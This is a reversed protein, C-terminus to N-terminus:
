GLLAYLLRRLLTGLGPSAEALISKAAAHSALSVLGTFLIAKTLGRTIYHM